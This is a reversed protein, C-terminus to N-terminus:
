LCKPLTDGSGMALHSPGTDLIRLTGPVLVWGGAAWPPPIRAKEWSDASPLLSRGGPDPAMGPSWPPRLSGVLPKHAGWLHNSPTQHRHGTPISRHRLGQGTGWPLHLVAGLWRDDGLVEAHDEVRPIGLQRSRAGDAVQKATPAQPGRLPSGETSTTPPQVPLLQSLRAQLPPPPPSCSSHSPSALRYHPHRPSPYQQTSERHPTAPHAQCLSLHSALQLGDWIFLYVLWEGLREGARPGERPHDQPGVGGVMAPLGGGWPGRPDYWCSPPSPQFFPVRSLVEQRRSAPLVQPHLIDPGPGAMGEQGRVLGQMGPTHPHHVPVDLCHPPPKTGSASVVM